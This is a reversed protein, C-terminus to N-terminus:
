CDWGLGVVCSETPPKGREPCKESYMCAQDTVSEQQSIIEEPTDKGFSILIRDLDTLEYNGFLTNEKGNVFLKLTKEGQNCYKEGTELIFCTDTFQIGMSTFLDGLTKKTRHKHINNGNGDHLHTDADLSKEDTSQYQDQGLDLIKNDLYVKIDAHEHVKEGLNKPFKLIEAKILTEFDEATQPNQIKEGALFFSPTWQIWLAKWSEQDRQIRELLEPKEIDAKFQVMDLDLAEAYSYFLEKDAYAKEGWDGQTLFLIDKMEFFKGQKWAAEVSLAATMSNKHGPLPFYRYVIKLDDKFTEKLQKVLPNYARCAECEFDLYEILIVKADLSGEKYDSPTLALLEQTNWLVVPEPEAGERTSYFLLWIIVGIIGMYLGIDRYKQKM